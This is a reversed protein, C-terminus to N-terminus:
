RRLYRAMMIGFAALASALLVGALWTGPRIISDCRTEPSIHGPPSIASDTSWVSVLIGGAGLGAITDRVRHVHLAEPHGALGHDARVAM